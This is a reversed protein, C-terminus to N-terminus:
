GYIKFPVIFQRLAISMPNERYDPCPGLCSHAALPPLPPTSHSVCYILLSFGHSDFSIVTHRLLGEGTVAGHPTASVNRPGTEKNEAGVM